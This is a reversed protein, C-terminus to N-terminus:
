FSAMQNEWNEMITYLTHLFKVVLTATLILIIIILKNCLLSHSILFNINLFCSRQGVSLECKERFTNPELSDLFIDESNPQTFVDLSDVAEEECKMTNREVM